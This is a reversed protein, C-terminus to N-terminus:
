NGKKVKKAKKVKLNTQIIDERKINVGRKELHARRLENLEEFSTCRKINRIYENSLKQILNSGFADKKALNRQKVSAFTLIIAIGIIIGYTVAFPVLMTEGLQFDVSYDIKRVGNLFDNDVFILNKQAVWSSQMANMMYRPPFLYLAINIGSYRAVVHYPFSIGLFNWGIIFFLTSIILGVVSSKIYILVCLTMAICLVWLSLASVIFLPWDVGSAVVRQSPYFILTLGILFGSLLVNVSFNAVIHASPHVIPNIPTYSIRTNMNGARELDITRYFLHFGNRVIIAGVASALLFPEDNRLMLWVFTVFTILIIGLFINVFSSFFSKLALLYFRWFIILKKKFSFNTLESM